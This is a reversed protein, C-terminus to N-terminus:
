ACSVMACIVKVWPARETTMTDEIWTLYETHVEDIEAAVQESRQRKSRDPRDSAALEADVQRLRREKFADLAAVEENLKANVADEFADRRASFHAEARRVAEPLLGALEDTDVPTERNPIPRHGVGTRDILDGFPLTRVFNNGCFSLAIWEYILPHGKRNPVLGSLVFIREDTELGPVGALVPAEFRGFTGLVRDNLWEVVPSLRWLFHMNPWTAEARRSEAIATAMRTRSTTLTLRRSEPM